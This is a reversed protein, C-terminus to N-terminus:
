EAKAGERIATNMAGKTMEAITPRIREEARTLYRSGKLVTRPVLVYHVKVKKSKAKPKAEILLLKGQKKSRILALEDKAWMPDRPNGHKAKASVPVALMRRPPKAIIAGGQLHATGRNQVDAYVLDSLAGASIPQRDKRIFTAPLFSRALESSGQAQLVRAVMGGALTASKYVLTLLESDVNNAMAAFHPAPPNTVDIRILDAM